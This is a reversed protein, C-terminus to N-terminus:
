AIHVSKSDLYPDRLNLQLRIRYTRRGKPLVLKDRGLNLVKSVM